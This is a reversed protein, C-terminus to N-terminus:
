PRKLIYHVPNIPSGPEPHIKKVVQFGARMFKGEWVHAGVHNAPVPIGPFSNFVAYYFHDLVDHFLGESPNRVDCERVILHGGPRLVRFIEDLLKDPDADHHLVMFMTVRDLSKDPLPIGQGRPMPIQTFHSQPSVRNFVDLGKANQPSVQWAQALAATITGTGCGVDAFSQPQPLNQTLAEIQTIRRQLRDSEDQNYNQQYASQFATTNYFRNLEQYMQEPKLSLQTVRDIEQALKQALQPAHKFMGQSFVQELLRRCHPDAWAQKLDPTGQTAGFRPESALSLVRAPRFGSYYPHQALVLPM